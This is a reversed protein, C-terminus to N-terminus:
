LKQSQNKALTDVLVCINSKAVICYLAAKQIKLMNWVKGVPSISARASRM